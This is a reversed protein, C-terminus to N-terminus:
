RVDKARALHVGGPFEADSAYLVYQEKDEPLKVNLSPRPNKTRQTPYRFSDGHKLKRVPEGVFCQGDSRYEVLEIFADAAGQNTVELVLKDGPYFETAEKDPKDPTEGLKLARFVLDAPVPKPSPRPTALSDL